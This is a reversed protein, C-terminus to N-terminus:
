RATAPFALRHARLSHNKRGQGAGGARWQGGHLTYWLKIPGTSTRLTYQVAEFNGDGFSLTEVGSKEVGVAMFEGTQSNLLRDATLIRPNWYAFSQVCDARVSDSRDQTDILFEDDRLGGSVQLMAGNDNTESAIAALCGQEWVELNRHEYSYANFFLFKVDFRANIEVRQRNEGSEVRFEHLGIERNDLYVRFVWEKREEVSASAPSAVAMVLASALIYMLKRVM